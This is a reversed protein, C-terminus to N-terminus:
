TPVAVPKAGVKKLGKELQQAITEKTTGKTCVSFVLGLPNTRNKAKKDCININWGGNHECVSIRDPLEFTQGTELVTVRNPTM